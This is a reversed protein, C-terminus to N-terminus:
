GPTAMTKHSHHFLQSDQGLICPSSSDWSDFMEEKHASSTSPYPKSWSALFDKQVNVWINKSGQQDGTGGELKWIKEEKKREISESSDWDREANGM